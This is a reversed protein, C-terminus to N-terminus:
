NIFMLSLKKSITMERLKLKSKIQKGNEQLVKITKLKQVIILLMLNTMLDSIINQLISNKIIKQKKNKSMYLLNLHFRSFRM